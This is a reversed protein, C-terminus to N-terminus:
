CVVTLVPHIKTHIQTHATDPKNTPLLVCM